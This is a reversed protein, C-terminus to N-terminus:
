FYSFLSSITNISESTNIHYILPLLFARSATFLLIGKLIETILLGAALPRPINNTYPPQVRPKIGTKVGGLPPTTFGEARIFCKKM